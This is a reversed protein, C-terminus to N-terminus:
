PCFYSKNEPSFLRDPVQRLKDCFQPSTGLWILWTGQERHSIFFMPETGIAKTGEQPTAYFVAWDGDRDASTITFTAVSPSEKNVTVFATKMAATLDSQEQSSFAKSSPQWNITLSPSFRPYIYIISVGLLLLGIVVAVLAFFWPSRWKM